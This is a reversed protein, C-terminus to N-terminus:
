ASHYLFAVFRLPTDNPNVIGHIGGSKTYIVSGPAVPLERCPKTGLGYIARQVIPYADNAPCDDVGMYAIGKGETIYYLEESGIHQHTGEVTHPPITVEHFFVLSASLERQLVWRMEIVNDNRREPNTDDMMGNLYRVPPIDRAKPVFFGRQFDILYNKDAVTNAQDSPTQTRPEQHSRGFNNDWTATDDDVRYGYPLNRDNERFSVEVQRLAKINALADASQPLRTISGSAGMMDLVSFSHATGAPPELTGWLEVQFAGIWRDYHMRVRGEAAPMGDPALRVWAILEDRVFRGRERAVEVLRAPHYEIRLVNTLFRGELYVEGKLVLIDHQGRAEQVNYRYRESRTANLYQAHYVRDPYFVVQFIDNTPSTFIDNFAPHM